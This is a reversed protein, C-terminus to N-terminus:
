GKTIPRRAARWKKFEDSRVFDAFPQQQELDGARQGTAAEMATFLRATEAYKKESLSIEILTWYPDALQPERAIAAEAAAKAGVLERKNFLLTARISDLLADDGVAKRIRELASLAMDYKGAQQYSGVLAVSIGADDPFQRVFAAIAEDFEREGVQQAFVVRQLLMVRGSQVSPPLQLFTALAEKYQREQALNNMATIQPLAKAFDSEVGALRGLGAAASGEAIATVFGRRLLESHWEGSTFIHLDVVRVAGTASRLLAYEHFNFNGNAHIARFLAQPRGGPGQRLRLFRYTGGKVAGALSAGLANLNVAKRIWAMQESSVQLGRVSASVLAEHDMVKALFAPDGAEAGAQIRAALERYAAEDSLASPARAPAAAPAPEARAAAFLRTVKPPWGEALSVRSDVTLAARFASTAAKEADLQAHAIGLWLHAQAVDARGAPQVQLRRVVDTLTTVADDLFGDQVQAIGKTLGTDAPQAAASSALALLVVLAAAVRRFANM